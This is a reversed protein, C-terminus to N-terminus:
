SHNILRFYESFIQHVDEPSKFNLGKKRIFKKMTVEHDVFLPYAEKRKDPISTINGNVFLYFQDDWFLDNSRHSGSLSVSTNAVYVYVDHHSLLKYEDVGNRTATLVEFFGFLAEPVNYFNEISEFKEFHSLETNFWTFNDVSKASVMFVEEGDKIEVIHKVIDYKLLVNELYANNVFDVTGVQWLSSLYYNKSHPNEVEPKKEKVFGPLDNTDLVSRDADMVQSFGSSFVFLLMLHAIIRIKM